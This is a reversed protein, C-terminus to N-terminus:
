KMFDKLGLRNKVEGLRENKKEDRPQVNAKYNTIAREIIDIVEYDKVFSAYEEGFYVFRGEKGGILVKFGTDEIEIASDSVPVCRACQVCPDKINIKGDKVEIAGPIPCSDRIEEEKEKCKEKEAVDQYTSSPNNELFKLYKEAELYVSFGM